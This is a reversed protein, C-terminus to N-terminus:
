LSKQFALLSHIKLESLVCLKKISHKCLWTLKSYELSVKYVAVFTKLNSM